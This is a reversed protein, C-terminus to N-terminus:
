EGLQIGQGSRPREKRMTDYRQGDALVFNIAAAISEPEEPDFTRDLGYGEVVEGM